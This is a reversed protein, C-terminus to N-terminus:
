TLVCNGVIACSEALVSQLLYALILLKYAVSESQLIILVAHLNVMVKPIVVFTYGRLASPGIAPVAFGSEFSHQNFLTSLNLSM